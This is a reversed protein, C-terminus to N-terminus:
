SLLFLYFINHQSINFERSLQPFSRHTHFTALLQILLVFKSWVKRFAKNQMFNKKRNPIGSTM